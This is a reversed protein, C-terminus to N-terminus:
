QVIFRQFYHQQFINLELIYLGAAPNEKLPITYKGGNEAMLKGHQILQGNTSTIRYNFSGTVQNRVALILHNRVPNVVISVPNSLNTIKVSVIYSRKEKGDIDILRLRYFAISHVPGNDVIGYREKVGRYRAPVQAIASFSIGDDSKEIIFRDVNYENDTTWTLQTASAQRSASFNILKLPVVFSKSGFTFLNFSSLSNSTITGTTSANGTATGGNDTWATGNYGATTIDPVAWNPFFIKSHDWNMTVTATGGSTKTLSWYENRDIDVVPFQTQTANPTAAFHKANFESNTSLSSIAITRQVSGNGVPFVFNSSGMKKVWGNVHRSDASGTYSSGAEYILYHPTASSTIIGATFTHVDGVSLNNNLTIGAINNSVLKWTKFAQGGSVTQAATGNLLLTGTGTAMSLEHNILNQTVFLNGNNTLAASNANTLNGNIYFSDAANSIFLIGSNHLDTQATAFFCLMSFPALLWISKKM